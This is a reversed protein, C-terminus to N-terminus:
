LYNFYLDRYCFINLFCKKLLNIRFKIKSVHSDSFRCHLKNKYSVLDDADVGVYDLIVRLITVADDIVDM